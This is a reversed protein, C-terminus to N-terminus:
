KERGRGRQRGPAITSLVGGPIMDGWRPARTDRDWPGIQIMGRDFELVDQRGYVVLLRRLDASSGMPSLLFAQAPRCVRCYGLLQGVDTLTVYGAKLEVFTLAITRKRQVVGVVDVQVEWAGCEPFMSRLGAEDIVRRLERRETSPLVRVDCRPSQEKLFGALWARCPAVLEAEPWRRM